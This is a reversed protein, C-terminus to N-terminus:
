RLCDFCFCCYDFRVIWDVCVLRGYGIVLSFLLCDICLLWVIVLCLLCYVIFVCLIGSSCLSVLVILADCYTIFVCDVIFCM